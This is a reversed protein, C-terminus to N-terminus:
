NGKLRFFMAPAKSVIVAINVPANSGTSLASWTKLDSSSQMTWNAPTASSTIFFSNPMGANKTALSIGSSASNLRFFMQPSSAVVVSVNVASNTGTSVADWTRLDTSAQLTWNTPATGASSISFVKATADARVSRMSLKVPPNTATVVPVTYSVENSPLSEIGFIDYATVAFYFTVGSTLNSIVSASTNGANIKQTYSRSATGYYVNYGAITSDTNTDWSLLVNQNARAHFSMLLVSLGAFFIRVALARGLTKLAAGL